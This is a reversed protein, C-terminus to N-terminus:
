TKRKILWFFTTGLQNKNSFPKKYFSNKFKKSNQNLGLLILLGGGKSTEDFSEGFFFEESFNITVDKPDVDEIWAQFYRVINPHNLKSFLQVEGLM